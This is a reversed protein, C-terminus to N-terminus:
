LASRPPPTSRDFHDVIIIKCGVESDVSTIRSILANRKANIIDRFMDSASGRGEHDSLDKDPPSHPPNILPPTPAPSVSHTCSHIFAHIFFQSLSSYILLFYGSVMGRDSFHMRELSDRAAHVRESSYESPSSNSSNSISSIHLMQEDCKLGEHRGRVSTQDQLHKYLDEGSGFPSSSQFQILWFETGEYLVLLYWVYANVGTSVLYAGTQTM